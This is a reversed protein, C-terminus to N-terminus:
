APVEIQHGHEVSFRQGIPIEVDLELDAESYWFSKGGIHVCHAVRTEVIKGRMTESNIVKVKDGKEM